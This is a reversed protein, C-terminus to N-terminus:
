IHGFIILSKFRVHSREYIRNRFFIHKVYMLIDAQPPTRIPSKIPIFVKFIPMKGPKYQSNWSTEKM